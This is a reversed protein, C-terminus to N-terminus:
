EPIDSRSPTFVQTIHRTFEQLATMSGAIPMYTATFTKTVSAEDQSVIVSGAIPTCTATFTRTVSSGGQSVTASGAIPNNACASDTTVNNLTVTYGAITGPTTTSFTYRTNSLKQSTVSMNVSGQSTNLNAVVQGTMSGSGSSLTLTGSTVTYGAATLNDFTVTINGTLGSVNINNATITLNGSMTSGVVQFNDFNASMNAAMAGSTNVSIHGSVAGNMLVTGNQALNTATLAYDLDITTSLNGTLNTIALVVQGSMTSGDSALCGNGYSATITLAPPISSLPPPPVITVQPCTSSTGSSIQNMIDIVTQLGSTATSQYELFGLAKDIIKQGSPAAAPLADLMAGSGNLQFGAVSRDASFSIYKADYLNTGPPFLSIAANPDVPYGVWKEHPKLTKPGSARMNGADDYAKLSVTAEQDETNVFAIGTWGNKEVKSFVGSKGPLDVVSYGALNNDVSNGFLEFGILPNPSQLSFWATTAPLNFGTTYGVLKGRPDITGTRIGLLTGSKDYANVTIDAATTASPNYAVIGTSWGAASDVHPYFLTTAPQGILPVGALQSGNGFLELGVVGSANEIVASEIATDILNNTLQAIMYGRHEKPLLTIPATLGTNFRVTLTKAENTTNVLGIGTWWPAWAIHTIYINGTNVNDVAPIAVRDGGIQTFKTYGVPAGSTNKFVIYGTNGANALDTGVNYQVRNNPSVLLTTSNVLTGDNKYSELNGVVLDTASPNIVCIETQWSGATTDVHPFYLVAHSTAVGFLLSILVFFIAWIRKM